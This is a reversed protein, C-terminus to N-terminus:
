LSFLRLQEPEHIEPEEVKTPLAKLCLNERLRDYDDQLTNLQARVDALEKFLRRRVKDHSLRMESILTLIQDNDETDFPLLPQIQAM